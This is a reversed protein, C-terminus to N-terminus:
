ESCGTALAPRWHMRSGPRWTAAQLLLPLLPLLLLRLYLLARCADSLHSLVLVATSPLLMALGEMGQLM